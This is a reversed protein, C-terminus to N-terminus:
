HVVHRRRVPVGHREEAESQERDMIPAFPDLRAAYFDESSGGNKESEDHAKKCEVGVQQAAGTEPKPSTIGAIPEAAPFRHGGFHLSNAVVELCLETLFQKQNGVFAMASRLDREIQAVFADLTWTMRRDINDFGLVQYVLKRKPRAVILKDFLRCLRTLQRIFGEGLLFSFVEKHSAARQKNTIVRLIRWVVDTGRKFRGFKHACDLQLTKALMHAVPLNKKAAMIARQRSSRSLRM